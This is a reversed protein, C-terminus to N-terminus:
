TPTTFVQLHVRERIAELRTLAETSLSTTGASVDTISDIFAPFEYGTPLGVFRVEGRAEGDLRIEPLPGSRKETVLKLRDSLASVESLIEDAQACSACAGAHQTLLLRVDGTLEQAFRQRLKEQDSSAILM